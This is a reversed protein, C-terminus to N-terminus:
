DWYIVIMPPFCPFGSIPRCAVRPDQGNRVSCGRGSHQFVVKDSGSEFYMHSKQYTSEHMATMVALLIELDHTTMTEPTYLEQLDLEFSGVEVTGVVVTNGLM